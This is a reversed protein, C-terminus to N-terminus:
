FRHPGTALLEEITVEIVADTKCDAILAHHDLV